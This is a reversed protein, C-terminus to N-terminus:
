HDTPTTPPRLVCFENGDHGALVQWAWGDEEIPSETICRAGIPPYGWEQIWFRSGAEGALSYPKKRGIGMIGDM